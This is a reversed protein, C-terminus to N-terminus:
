IVKIPIPITQELYHISHKGSVKVIATYLNGQPVKAKFCYRHSDGSNDFGNNKNKVPYFINSRYEMPLAEKLSCDAVSFGKPLTILIELIVSVGDTNDIWNFGIKYAAKINSEENIRKITTERDCRNMFWIPIGLIAVVTIITKLIDSLEITNKGGKYKKSKKRIIGSTQYM